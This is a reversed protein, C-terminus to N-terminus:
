KWFKFRKVITKRKKYKGALNFVAKSFQSNKKMFCVPIREATSMGVADDEPLAAGISNHMVDDIESLQLEYRKKQVRNVVVINKLKSNKLSKKLKLVGAVAPIDPTTILLAEDWYGVANASSPEPATDVVVFDYNSSRIKTRLTAVNGKTLTFPKTSLTSNIVHLGTPGHVAKVDDIKMGKTVLEKFGLNVGEMGLLIGVNPNTTDSDILLTRYGALRLVTALNVAISTKGVGGKYSAIGIVYPDAM